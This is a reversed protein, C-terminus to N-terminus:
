LRRENETRLLGAQFPWLNKKIEELLRRQTWLTSQGSLEITFTVREQWQRFAYFGFVVGYIYNWFFSTNAMKKRVTEHLHSLSTPKICDLFGFYILLPDFIHSKVIHLPNLFCIQGENLPTLRNRKRKSANVWNSIM